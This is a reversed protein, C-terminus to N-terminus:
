WGGGTGGGGGGSGGGYAGDYPESGPTLDIQGPYDDYALWDLYANLLAALPANFGTFGTRAAIAAAGYRGVFGALLGILKIMSSSGRGKAM